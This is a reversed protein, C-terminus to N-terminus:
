MEKGCNECAYINNINETIEGPYPSYIEIDQRMLKWKHPELRAECPLFGIM